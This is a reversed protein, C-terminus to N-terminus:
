RDPAASPQPNDNVRIQHECDGRNKVVGPVGDLITAAWSYRSQPTRSGNVGTGNRSNCLGTGEPEVDTLYRVSPDSSSPYAIAIAYRMLCYEAGSHLRHPLGLDIPGETIGGPFFDSPLVVSGNEKKVTIPVAAGTGSADEFFQNGPPQYSWKVVLDKEGHHFVNCSHLMEHAVTSAFFFTGRHQGLDPPIKVRKAMGPTGVKLVGASTAGEAVPTGPIIRIVHQDVVHPGATRNFNIVGNANVQYERLLPHVNLATAGKFLSIGAAVEPNSRMLNVVFVDKKKADATMWNDGHKFGRYEEYLTLGDGKFGDGVPDNESDDDDALNGIGNATFFATAIKSGDRCNPIKVIQHNSPGRVIGYVVQGNELVASAEFEGYAGYDFCSIKVTDEYPAAGTHVARLYPADIYMDPNQGPEFQLDYPTDAEPRPPWNLCVGKERTTETLTYIFRVAKFQPTGGGPKQLKVKFSLVEGAIKEDEGGVPQWQDLNAPPEIILEVPIPPNPSIFYQVSVTGPLGEKTIAHITQGSINGFSAPLSGEIFKYEPTIKTIPQEGSHLGTKIEFRQYHITGISHETLGRLAEQTQLSDGFALPFLLKFKRNAGDIEFAPEQGYRTTGAGRASGRDYGGAHSPGSFEWRYRETVKLNEDRVRILDRENEADTKTEDINLGSIWNAWNNVYADFQANAQDVQASSVSSLQSTVAAILAQPDANAGLAALARAQQAAVQSALDPPKAEGTIVSLSPGQSRLGLLMTGSMVRESSTNRSGFTGNLKETVTYNVYWVPASLFRLADETIAPSVSPTPNQAQAITLSVSVAFLCRCPLSTKM